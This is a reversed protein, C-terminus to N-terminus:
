LRTGPRVSTDPPVHSRRFYCWTIPYTFGALVISDPDCIISVHSLTGEHNRRLREQELHNFSSEIPDRDFLLADGAGHPRLQVHAPDLYACAGTAM